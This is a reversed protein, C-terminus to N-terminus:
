IGVAIWSVGQSGDYTNSVVFSANTISSVAWYDGTGGGSATGIPVALATFVANPFATSFAITATSAGPVTGQGWKFIIGGPLTVSGNTFASQSFLDAVADSFDSISSADHTHSNAAKAALADVLGDITTLGHTHDSDSKDALADSTSDALSQISQTLSTAAANVAETIMSDVATHVQTLTAEDPTGGAQTILYLLEDYVANVYAASDKSAPIGSQQDGDTFKDNYLGANADSKPYDM